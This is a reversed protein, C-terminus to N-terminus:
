FPYGVGINFIVSELDPNNEGRQFPPDNFGNSFIFRKGEARAPDYVKLGLDFRLVLFSFDFRAGVGSSIAIEKWFRNAKFSAGPRTNDERLSWVNGADIFVAGALIGVLKRRLEFSSLLQIEGQQEFSYDLAQTTSDIPTYSGPGLRRPRWGRINNSGGAFFYKEYPLVQNDSYSVAIGSAVRYAFNTREDIPIHKRFDVNLKFYKYYELDIKRLFDDPIINLTSGGSEVQFRLFASNDTFTGYNNFNFNAGFVISSVFSPDFSNKLNNGNEALTILRANFASDLSSNIISIEGFALSFQDRRQNEWLYTNSFNFNVRNYEPRDTFSYGGQVRTKPNMKGWRIRRKNNVPLIFQPFTFSLNAGAEISRYIEDPNSASAVGEIGIRGSLELNELGKFVNRKKFSLNYFPGPFGQTVNVGVENSWQYRNLPSVFINAIFQGGTTDYNINIFKFNDMYALQRQTLLTNEKNYKQGPYIFVRRDLIKRSYPKDYYKYTITNFFSTTRSRDPIQLNADMTFVVSDLTFVKHYGRSAPNKILTRIAVRKNGIASDVQFSVFQRSFDYYGNNKLLETVRDRENGITSQDYQEGVQLLSNESDAKVLSDIDSDRIDYLLSDITYPLGEKIEFTVRAKRRTLRARYDAKANFFGKSHLFLEMQDATNRAKTSDFISLPEGIRMGLNGEAIAKDIKEIKRNRKRKLRNSNRGNQELEAIRTAFKAEVEVKKEVYKQKDYSKLGRYYFWVYPSFPLVLIRRNPQQAYFEALEENGVNKNGKIKQSRLAKEGDQLHRLGSCSMVLLCCTVLLFLSSAFRRGGIVGLWAEFSLSFSARDSCNFFARLFSPNNM